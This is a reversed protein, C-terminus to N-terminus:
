GRVSYKNWFKILQKQIESGGCDGTVKNNLRVADNSTFVCPLWQEIRTLLEFRTLVFKPLLSLHPLNLERGLFIRALSSNTSFHQTANYALILTLKSKKSEFTGM